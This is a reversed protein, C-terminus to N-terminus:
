RRKFARCQRAFRTANVIHRAEHVAVRCRLFLDETWDRLSEHTQLAEKIEDPTPKRITTEGTETGQGVAQPAEDAM